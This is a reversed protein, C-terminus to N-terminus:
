TSPRGTRLFKTGARSKVFDAAKIWFSDQKHTPWRDGQSYFLVFEVLAKLEAEVWPEKKDASFLRKAGGQQGCLERLPLRKRPLHPTISSPTGRLRKFGRGGDRPTESSDLSQRTNPPTSAM